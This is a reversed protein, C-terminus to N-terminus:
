SGEEHGRRLVGEEDGGDEYGRRMVGMRVGLGLM